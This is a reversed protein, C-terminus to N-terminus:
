AVAKFCAYNQAPTPHLLETDFVGLCEVVRFGLTSLLDLHRRVLFRGPEFELETGDPKIFDGNLFLGGSSLVDRCGRYVRETHTEGGLDHLAWTSVVAGVQPRVLLEWKDAILNAQIYHVRGSFKQLRSNALELMPQSFDIAEYTVEPIAELLRSALYGPGIGLEVVHPAPLSCKKLQAIIIDFLLLRESTPDFREAWNRAYQTDHFEHQAGIIKSM